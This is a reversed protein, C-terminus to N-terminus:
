ERLDCAASMHEATPTLEPEQNEEFEYLSTNVINTKNSM